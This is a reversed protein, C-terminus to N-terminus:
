CATTDWSIENKQWKPSLADKKNTTKNQKQLCQMLHSNECELDVM